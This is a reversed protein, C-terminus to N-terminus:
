MQQNKIIQIKKLTTKFILKLPFAISEGFIQIMKISINDFGHTKTPDLNKTISSIDNPYIDPLKLMPRTRSRPLSSGNIIPVCISVLFNNLLKAKACFDSVFKGNILLPRVTPIKKSYFFHNLISWYTKPATNSDNLKNTM